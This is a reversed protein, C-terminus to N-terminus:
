KGSQDKALDLLASLREAKEGKAKAAIKALKDLGGWVIYIVHEVELPEQTQLLDLLLSLNPEEELESKIKVKTADTGHVLCAVLTPLSEPHVGHKEVFAATFYDQVSQHELDITDLYEEVLAFYEADALGLGFVAYTGPLANREDDADTYWEYTVMAVRAYDALLPHLNPYALANAFFRHTGSKALGKIPLFQKVGSKLKIQYSKPFGSQLLACLFALAQAYSEEREQKISITVTAFVDNALCEVQEDRLVTLERSLTGSGEKMFQSARKSGLEVARELWAIGKQRSYSPEYKIVAVAAYLFLEMAGEDIHGSDFGSKRQYTKEQWTKTVVDFYLPLFSGEVWDTLANVIKHQHEGLQEKKSKNVELIRDFVRIAEHCDTEPFLSRNLLHRSLFFTELPKTPGTSASFLQTRYASIEALLRQQKEANFLEVIPLKVEGTDTQFKGWFSFQYNILAQSSLTELKEKIYAALHPVVQERVDTESLDAQKSGLRRFDGPTDDFDLEWDDLEMLVVSARDNKYELMASDHIGVQLTTRRVIEDADKEEIYAFWKDIAQEMKNVTPELTSHIM